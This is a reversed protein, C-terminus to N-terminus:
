IKFRSFAIEVNSEDPPLFDVPEAMQEDQSDEEVAFQADDDHADEEVEVQKHLKGVSPQKKADAHSDNGAPRKRVPPEGADGFLEKFRKDRHAYLTDKQVAGSILDKALSIMFAKAATRDAFADIRSQCIQKNSLTICMLPHRDIKAIVRIVDGEGTSGIVEHVHDPSSPPRRSARVGLTALDAVTLETITHVDNGPFTAIPADTGKAGLPARATAFSKAKADDAKCRWAKMQDPDWGYVYDQGAPKKKEEEEDEEEDEEGAEEEEEEEKDGEEVEHEEEDGPKSKGTKRRHTIHQDAKRKDKDFETKSLQITLLWSPPKEKGMAQSTFRCMGRLRSTMTTAWADQKTSDVNWDAHSRAFMEEHALKVVTKKFSLNPQEGVLAHLLPMHNEVYSGCMKKCEPLYSASNVHPTLVAAIKGGDMANRSRLPLPQM